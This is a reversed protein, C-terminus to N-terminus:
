MDRGFLTGSFATIEKGPRAVWGEAQLRRILERTQYLRPKRAM